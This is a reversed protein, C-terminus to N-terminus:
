LDIGYHKLGTQIAKEIKNISQEGDIELLCGREKWYGILPKIHQHFYSLRNRMVEPRDDHRTSLKKGCLDCIGARRPPNYRIHYSAGCDCVRRGGLRERVISDRVQINVAAIIDQSGSLKKLRKALSALQHDRRPYGDFIAGRLADKQKLREDIIREIIKDSVMKGNDILQRVKLGLPTRRDEEHRLLEGPSVVPLRLKEALKDVQTGKGCGPPGFFILFLKPKKATM